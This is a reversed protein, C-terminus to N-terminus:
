RDNLETFNQRWGRFCLRFRNVGINRGKSFLQQIVKGEQVYDNPDHWLFEVVDADQEISGSEKLDSLQPETKKESERSMQSLMMFCCNLERALQKAASTVRGIAQSRTESKKQPISMIQLYDVAIMAIKGYQRKFQKATARIEDITVGASDQIFIPLDELKEYMEEVRAYENDSLRKEILKRYNVGAASSIMRDKVENEDMEQSYILVAGQNQQAVGYSRQLLLATKGVSPRGASVFLWGRWLGKAWDDYKKFGTGIVEAQQNLHAFYDKRTEKFSKMKGTDTPRLDAILEEVKAFYDEDSDFEQQSLQKIEEAAQIGRRRMAKSRVAQAYHSANAATPCSDALQSFYDVDEKDLQGFKNYENSVTVLDVPKNLDHLYRMVKYITQHRVTSFDRAELYSIEDLVDQDLFVAGLVSQESQIDSAGILSM